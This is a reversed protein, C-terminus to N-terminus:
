AQWILEIFEEIGKLVIHNKIIEKIFIDQKDFKKKVSRIINIKLHYLKELDKVDKIKGIVFVDLDSKENASYNAYSGFIIIIEQSMKELDSFLGKLFNYKELFKIKKTIEVIKIIDKIKSNFKNLFYYKNKGETMFKLVNEKELKKLINSVTKQNMKLKVAISRGYIKKSYDSSFEEMVNIEKKNLLMKSM